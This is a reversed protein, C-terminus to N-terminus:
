ANYEGVIDSVYVSGMEDFMGIDSGRVDMMIVKKYGRGQKPSELLKARVSSGMLNIMYWNGKVLSSVDINPEANAQEWMEMFSM